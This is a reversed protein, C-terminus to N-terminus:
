RGRRAVFPALRRLLLAGVWMIQAAAVSLFAVPISLGFLGVFSASRWLVTARETPTVRESVLGGRFVYWTNLLSVAGAVLMSAAYFITATRGGVRGLVETPFPLFVISLLLLTNLVVLRDDYARLADFRRHHSRWFMSIVLFSLVFSVYQHGLEALDHGLTAETTTLPLRLQLVLLTMAIAFVADSFFAIRDIARASEVPEREGDVM